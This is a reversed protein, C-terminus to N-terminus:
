PFPEKRLNFAISIRPRTGYHPFAMHPVHSPFIIMLGPLPRVYIGPPSVTAFFTDSRTQCPDTLELATGHEADPPPDGDDVYYTGSWTSFGHTHKRNFDGTRNVNAWMEFKWSFAPMDRGALTQRTAEDAMEIMRAILTKGAEGCFELIGTYSHWGGVNSRSKAKGGTAREEALIKERLENNLADSNPWTHIMFPSTFFNVIRADSLGAM